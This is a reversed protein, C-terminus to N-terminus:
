FFGLQNETSEESNRKNKRKEYITVEYQSFISEKLIKLMEKLNSNTFPFPKRTKKGGIYVTKYKDSMIPTFLGLLAGQQNKEDEGDISVEQGMLLAGTKIKRNRKDPYFNVVVYPLYENRIEANDAIEMVKSYYNSTIREIDGLHSNIYLSVGDGQVYLIGLSRFPKELLVNKIIQVSYKSKLLYDYVISSDTLKWSDASLRYTSDEDKILLQLAKKIMTQYAFDEVSEFIATYQDDRIKQWRKIDNIYLANHCFTGDDLMIYSSALREALKDGKLDIIGMATSARIINDINDLDMGNGNLLFSLPESKDGVIIRAIRYIDLGLKRGQKSQCVSKLKIAGDCYIQELTGIYSRNTGEIIHRLNNEHDFGYEAQLVEEMAHAFPPTGVDHYLCAMMLEIHDKESLSLSKACIHALYCVGLSHEYRSSNAFAPFVAFQNNAMRVDRLRLLAPCNLLNQIIDPFVMEGYLRDYIHM